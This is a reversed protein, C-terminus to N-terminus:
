GRRQFLRALWGGNARPAEVLECERLLLVAEANGHGAAKELWLRAAILDQSHVDALYQKAVNLAALGPDVREGADPPPLRKAGAHKWRARDEDPWLTFHLPLVLGPHAPSVVVPFTMEVLWGDPLASREFYTTSAFLPYGGYVPARRGFAREIESALYAGFAQRESNFDDRGKCYFLSRAQEMLGQPSLRGAPDYLVEGPLGGVRGPEFLAMNVQIAAAWVVKGDCILADQADFLRKLGDGDAWEPRVMRPMSRLRAPDVLIGIPPSAAMARPPSPPEAITQTEHLSGDAGLDPRSLHNRYWAQTTYQDNVYLACLGGAEAQRLGQRVGKLLSFFCLSGEGEEGLDTPRDQAPTHHIAQMVTAEDDFDLARVVEAVNAACWALLRDIEAAVAGQSRPDFLTVRLDLGYRSGDNAMAMAEDPVFERHTEREESLYRLAEFDGAADLLAKAAVKIWDSRTLGYIHCPQAGPRTRAVQARVLAAVALSPLLRDLDPTEPDVVHFAFGSHHSM